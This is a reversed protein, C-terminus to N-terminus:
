PNPPTPKRRAEFLARGADIGSTKVSGAQGQQPNPRPAHPGTSPTFDALFSEADAELEAKSKGSLRHAQSLPVGKAAAVERQLDRREYDSIKAALEDARAKERQAETLEGQKIAALADSDQKLQEYDAFEAKAQSAARAARQGIIRDFDAQTAPPTYPKSDAAPPTNEPEQTQYGAPSDTATNENSVSTDIDM